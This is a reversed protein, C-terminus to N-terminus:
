LSPNIFTQLQAYYGKGNDKGSWKGYTQLRDPKKVIFPLSIQHILREVRGKGDRFIL